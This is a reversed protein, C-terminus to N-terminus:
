HLVPLILLEMHSIRPHATANRGLFLVPYKDEFDNSARLLCIAISAQM